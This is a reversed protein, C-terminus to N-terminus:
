RGMDMGGMDDSKPKAAGLLRVTVITEIPGAHEFTLTVPFQDGAKLPQKLGELMLHYGGPSFTAPAKSDVPLAAVARMQMVGDVIKSEHVTAASAVPTSVAILRDPAGRDTITLYVVGTAASPPTARSWAGAVAIPGAPEDALVPASSLGAILLLLASPRLIM